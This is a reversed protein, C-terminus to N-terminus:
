IFLYYLAFITPIRIILIKRGNKIAIKEATIKKLLNEKKQKAEYKRISERQVRVQQELVQMGHRLNAIEAKLDHVRADVTPIQVAYINRLVIRHIKCQLSSMKKPKNVM